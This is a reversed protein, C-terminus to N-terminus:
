VSRRVFVRLIGNIPLSQLLAKLQDDDPDVDNDLVSLDASTNPPLEYEDINGTPTTNAIQLTVVVPASVAFGDFARYSFSDNQPVGTPTYLFSGDMPFSLSGFSPPSVFVASLTDSDADTDNDLLGTGHFYWHAAGSLTYSDPSAAPARNPTSFQAAPVLEKPIAASEWYLKVSAIGLAEFYEITIPTTTGPTLTVTTARESNSDVWDDIVLEDDVWMRVGGDASLYFTTEGGLCSYLRTKWRASFADPPVAKIEGLAYTPDPSSDGWDFDLRRDTRTMYLEDLNQGNFYQAALGSAVHPPCPEVIEVAGADPM